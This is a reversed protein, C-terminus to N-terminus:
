ISRQTEVIARSLGVAIVSADTTVKGRWFLFGTAPVLGSGHCHKVLQVHIDISFKDVRDKNAGLSSVCEYVNHRNNKINQHKRQAVFSM